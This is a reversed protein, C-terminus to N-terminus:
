AADYANQSSIALQQMRQFYTHDRLTRRQGADAIAEREEAHELYHEVLEACEGPSRYAVVEKGLEFLECLDEKWDTILLTGMGTAEYLRLNNAYPAIDGHHNLTIKSAALIEYMERGWAPGAYHPRIPSHPPLNALAPAWVKLQNLKSCLYELWPIRSSHVPHFSGVFTVDFMGKKGTVSSLIAPEFGLRHLEAPIGRKRFYEVTPPFSSIVLDYLSFDREEPLPGAAHQGILVRAHPKVEKVFSDSTSDLAQNLLIDPRYHELQTVLIESLLGPRVRSVWPVLGRRMRFAWQWKSALSVGHERAWARQLPENNICIDWADHGLKRLNGTYDHPGNFLSDIRAKEQVDHSAKALRPYQAYLRDLFNPYDASLVVFKM